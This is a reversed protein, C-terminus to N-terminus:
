VEKFKLLISKGVSDKLLNIVEDPETILIDNEGSQEKIMEFYTKKNSKNESSLLKFLEDLSHIIFHYPYANIGTGLKNQLAICRRGSIKLKGPPLNNNDNGIYYALDYAEKSRKRHGNFKAFERDAINLFIKEQEEDKIINTDVTYLLILYYESDKDVSISSSNNRGVRNLMKVISITIVFLSMLISSKYEEDKMTKELKNSLSDLTEKIGVTLKGTNKVLETLTKVLLDM